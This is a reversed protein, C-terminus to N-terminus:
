LCTWKHETFWKVILNYELLLEMFFFIIIKSEHLLKKLWCLESLFYCNLSLGDTTTRIIPRTKFVSRICLCKSCLHKRVFLVCKSFRTWFCKSISSWVYVFLVSCIRSQLGAPMRGRDAVRAGRTYLDVIYCQLTPIAPLGVISSKIYDIHIKAILSNMFDFILRLEIICM